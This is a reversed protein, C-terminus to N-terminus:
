RNGGNSDRKPVDTTKPMASMGEAVFRDVAAAHLQILKVVYPDGSTEVVKVGDSLDTVVTDIKDANEFIAVFLPDMPRIVQKKKLREYMAKVHERLTKAVHEDPSTTVTEVGNELQKVTREVLEHNALLQRLAQMDAMNGGMMGGMGGPRMMGGPGPGSHDKHGHDHGNQSHNHEADHGSSEGSAHGSHNDTHHAQSDAADNQRANSATANPAVPSANLVGRQHCVLWMILIGSGFALAVTLITRRM